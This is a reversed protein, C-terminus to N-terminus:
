ISHNVTPKSDCILIGKVCCFTVVWELYKSIAICSSDVGIPAFFESPM